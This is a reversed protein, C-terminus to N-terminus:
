KSKFSEVPNTNAANHSQMFVTIFSIILCFLGSAAYIIPSLEIRYSYDSLWGSMFYWIIPVSLVFAIVVYLLFTWVLKSLIEKNTSGFVKRVAIESSRQQIFYTSMALLGLLSIIVAVISFVVVIKLMRRQSQFSEEIKSDIYGGHFDLKTIEKHLKEIDARVRNNDTGTTEILVNWPDLDEIKRLSLIIPSKSNTINGLQFDKVVGAVPFESESGLKFSEADEKLLTERLAQESLYYSNKAVVNNERLVEFGMMNWFASDGNIIQFSVSGHPYKTTWNNGRNFPTGESLAVSKVGPVKKLEDAFTLVQEKSQFSGTSVDIINVTNYGLPANQMYNIQWVMTIASAVLVITIVDQFVIFFRSFVMKSKAKFSGRVVEIPKANSIISAPLFGAAVGLVVVVVFAILFGTLNVVLSMDIKTNLLDEAYPAAIYALGLGIMFSVFSLLTSELILRAFLEGRSSGLLRRTAMEKARFGTQAVTLNIYNIIAFILIVFGISMLVMVFTWDGQRFLWVGSIDSFYADGFPVFFVNKELNERYIWFIERFYAEIDGTKANLAEINDTKVFILASGANNFTESAMGPNFVGVNDIRLIIDGGKFISNNLDKMVGNVVVTLTDDLVISQGMPDIGSFAKRAFSETIVASNKAALIGDRVGEVVEYSFIDYFNEEVLLLDASYKNDGIKAPNNSFGPAIPCVEQIEPYRDKLREAIRYATGFRTESALLYLSDYNKQNKDVSLERITYASILIVFMFSVSLGFIDIATYAKNKGLFNFFSKFDFLYKM